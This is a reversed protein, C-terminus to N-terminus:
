FLEEEDADYWTQPPRFRQGISLLKDNPIQAADLRAVDDVVIPQASFYGTRTRLFDSVEPSQSYGWITTTSTTNLIAVM